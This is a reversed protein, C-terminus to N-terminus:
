FSIKPMQLQFFESDFNKQLINDNLLYEKSTM